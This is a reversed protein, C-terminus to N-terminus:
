AAWADRLVGQDKCTVCHNLTKGKLKQEDCCFSGSDDNKTQSTM